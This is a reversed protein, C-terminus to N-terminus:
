NKGPRCHQAIFASIVAGRRVDAPTARRRDRPGRVARDARRADRHVRCFRRPSNGGTNVHDRTLSRGGTRDVVVIDDAPEPRQGARPSRSGSATATVARSRSRRPAPPSWSRAGATPHRLVLQTTLRVQDVTVIADGCDDVVSGPASTPSRAVTSPSARSGPPRRRTGACSSCRPATPDMAPRSGTDGAPAIARPEGDPAAVYLRTRGQARSGLRLRDAATPRSRPATATGEFAPLDVTRPQWPVRRLLLM